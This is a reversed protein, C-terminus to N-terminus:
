LINLWSWFVMESSSNKATEECCDTTNSTKLYDVLAVVGIVAAVAAAMFLLIKNWVMESSSNKATEERCDTTNSTKLYDVLAVVGIIAAVTAAM